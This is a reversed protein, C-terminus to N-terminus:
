GEKGPDEVIYDFINKQEEKQEDKQYDTLCRPNDWLIRYGCSPCYNYIVDVGHGCNGCSHTDYKKGYIGKHYKPRRGEMMDLAHQKQPESLM